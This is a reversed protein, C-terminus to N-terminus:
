IPLVLFDIDTKLKRLLNYEIRFIKAEIERNMESLRIIITPTELEELEIEGVLPIRKIKALSEELVSRDNMNLKNMFKKLPNSTEVTRIPIDTKHLCLYEKLEHAQIPNYYLCLPNASPSVVRFEQVINQPGVSTKFSPRFSSEGPSKFLPRYKM